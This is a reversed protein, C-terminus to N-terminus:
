RDLEATLAQASPYFAASLEALGEPLRPGLGGVLLTPDLALLRGDRVARTQQLLPNHKLLAQRAEEGHLSRDAFILM